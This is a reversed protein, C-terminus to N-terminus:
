ELDGCAGGGGGGGGRLYSYLQQWTSPVMLSESLAHVTALYCHHMSNTWKSTFRRFPNCLNCCVFTLLSIEWGGARKEQKM